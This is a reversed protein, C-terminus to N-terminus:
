ISLMSSISDQTWAHKRKYIVLCFHHKSETLFKLVPAIPKSGDANM